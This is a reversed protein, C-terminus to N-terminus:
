SKSLFGVESGFEICREVVNSSIKDLALKRLDELVIYAISDIIDKCQGTELILQIIYNGYQDLIIPLCDSKIANWIRIYPSNTSSETLFKKIKM